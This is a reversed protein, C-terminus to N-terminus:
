VQMVEESLYNRPWFKQQYVEMVPTFQAWGQENVHSERLPERSCLEWDLFLKQARAPTVVRSGFHWRQRTSEFAYFIGSAPKFRRRLLLTERVNPRMKNKTRGNLPCFIALGLAQPIVGPAVVESLTPPRQTPCATHKSCLPLLIDM